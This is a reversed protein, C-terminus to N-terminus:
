LLKSGRPTGVHEGAQRVPRMKEIEGVNIHGCNVTDTDQLCRQCRHGLHCCREGRLHLLGAM